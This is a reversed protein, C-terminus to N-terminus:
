DAEKGHTKRGEGSAAEPLQDDEFMRQLERTEYLRRGADLGYSVGASFVAECFETLRGPSEPWGCRKIYADTIGIAFLAIEPRSQLAAMQEADRQPDRSTVDMWVELADIIEQRTVDKM